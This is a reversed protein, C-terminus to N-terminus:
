YVTGGNSTNTITLKNTKNDQKLVPLDLLLLEGSNKLTNVQKEALVITILGQRNRGTIKGLLTNYFWNDQKDSCTNIHKHYQLIIVESDILSDKDRSGADSVYEDVLYTKFNSDRICLYYTMFCKLTNPDSCTVLYSKDLNLELTKFYDVQQRTLSKYTDFYEGLYMKYWKYKENLAM